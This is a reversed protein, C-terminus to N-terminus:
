FDKARLKKQAEAEERGRDREQPTTLTAYGNNITSGYRSGTLIMGPREWTMERDVLQVGARTQVPRDVVKTPEGIREKVAETLGNFGSTPFTFSVRVLRGERFYSNVNVLFAGGFSNRQWCEQLQTGSRIGGRGDNLYRCHVDRIYMCSSQTLCEHDPLKTKYEEMSAGLPVGKYTIDDSQAWAGFAAVLLWLSCWKNM